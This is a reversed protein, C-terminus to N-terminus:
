DIWECKLSWDGEPGSRMQFIIKIRVWSTVMFLEIWAEDFSGSIPIMLHLNISEGVNEVLAGWVESVWRIVAVVALISLFLYTCDM